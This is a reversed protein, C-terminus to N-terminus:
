AGMRRECFEIMELKALEQHYKEYMQFLHKLEPDALVQELHISPVVNKGLCEPCLTDYIGGRRFYQERGEDDFEEMFEEASFAVGRLGEALVYSHGECTSCVEMVAPFRCEIEEGDDNVFKVKLFHM